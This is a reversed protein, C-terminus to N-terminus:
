LFLQTESLSDAALPKQEGEARLAEVWSALPADLAALDGPCAFGCAVRWCWFADVATHYRQVTRPAIANERLSGVTRRATALQGRTGSSTVQQKPM